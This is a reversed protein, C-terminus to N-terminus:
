DEAAVAYKHFALVRPIGVENGTAYTADTAVIVGCARDIGLVHGVADLRGRQGLPDDIETLRGLVHEVMVNELVVQNTDIEALLITFSVL